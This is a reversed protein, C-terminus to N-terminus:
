RWRQGMSAKISGLVSSLGFAYKALTPLAAPAVILIPEPKGASQQSLPRRRPAQSGEQFAAAVLPASPTESGHTIAAVEIVSYSATHPKWSM